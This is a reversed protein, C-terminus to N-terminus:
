TSFYTNLFSMEGQLASSIMTSTLCSPNVQQVAGAVQEPAQDIASEVRRSAEDIGEQVQEAVACECKVGASEVLEPLTVLSEIWAVIVKCPAIVLEGGLWCLGHWGEDRGRFNCSIEIPRATKQPCARKM